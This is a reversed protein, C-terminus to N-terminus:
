SPAEASDHACRFVYFEQGWGSSHAIEHFSPMSAISEAEGHSAARESYIVTITKRRSRARAVLKNLVQTLFAGSFPRYMFIVDGDTSDCYDVADMHLITIPTLTGSPPQCDSINQTAQECFEAALDVGTVKEFGYEAAIICARGLGCGLDVFHADRPLDLRALLKRFGWANVPGYQTADALRAVEFTTTDLPIFGSTQVNYRRDFSKIYRDDIFSVLSVVTQVPGLDALLGRLRRIATAPSHYARPNDM